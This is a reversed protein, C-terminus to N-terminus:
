TRPGPESAATREATLEACIEYLESAEGPREHTWPVRHEPRARRDMWLRGPDLRAQESAALWVITDAGQEADRLVPRTVSHFRPLSSKVGPTQVWGPHMAHFSLDAGFRRQLEGTLVVQARKAHAYFAPGDFDKGELQLDDLQLRAMYMGGSTVFIVRGDAAALSPRLLETLLFPGLVHVAFTLEHGQPSRRREGLLAGANHVLVDIGAPEASLTAGLARVANLDGLDCLHLHVRDSGTRTRIREAAREGRGRDRAVMHLEAGLAAFAEGAAAGIGSNAGTVVVRAGELRREPDPSSGRLGRLAFGISSYGGVVTRDLLWDLGAGLPKM